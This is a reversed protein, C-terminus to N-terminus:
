TVKQVSENESKQADLRQRSEVCVAYDAFVRLSTLECPAWLFRYFRM